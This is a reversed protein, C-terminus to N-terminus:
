YWPSPPNLVGSSLGATAIGIALALGIGLASAKLSVKSLVVRTVVFVLPVTAVM